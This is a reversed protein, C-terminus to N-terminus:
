TAGENLHTGRRIITGRPVAHIPVVTWGVIQGCAINVWFGEDAWISYTSSGGPLHPVADGEVYHRRRNGLGHVTGVRVRGASDCPAVTDYGRLRSCWRWFRNLTNM